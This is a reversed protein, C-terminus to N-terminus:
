LDGVGNIRISKLLNGSGGKTLVIKCGEQKKIIAAIEVMPRIMTIGCYIVLERGAQKTTKICGSLLSSISIMLALGIVEFSRNLKKAM